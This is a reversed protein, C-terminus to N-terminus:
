MLSTLSCLNGMTVDPISGHLQNHSLDIKELFVLSTLATANIQGDLERNSLDLGTVHCVTNNENPCECKIGRYNNDCPSSLLLGLGLTIMLDDLATEEDERLTANRDSSNTSQCVVYGFQCLLLLVGLSSVLKNLYIKAM